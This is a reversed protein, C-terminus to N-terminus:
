VTLNVSVQSNLVAVKGPSVVPANFLSLPSLKLNFKQNPAPVSKVEPVNPVVQCV